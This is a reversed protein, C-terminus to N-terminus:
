EENVGSREFVDSEIPETREDAPELPNLAGTARAARVSDKGDGRLSDMIMAMSRMEYARVKNIEEITYKQEM